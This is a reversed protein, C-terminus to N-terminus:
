YKRQLKLSRLLRKLAVSMRQVENRSTEDAETFRLDLGKMNAIDSESAQSAYGSLQNIPRIVQSRVFWLLGVLSAIFAAVSVWATGGVAEFLDQGGEVIPVSVSIVGAVDGLKYGYGRNGDPYRVRVAVPAKEPTEHCSMCAPAATLRRAYLLRNGRIEMAETGGSERINEIAGLEFRTPANNPNMFKDSTIRFKAAHGSANTVDSLERQILAPNKRHFGGTALEGVAKIDAESLGTRAVYVAPTMGEGKIVPITELFDGAKSSDAGESRAWMGKYKSAWTGVDEVLNAITRARSHASSIYARGMLVFAMLAGLLGVLFLLASFQTWLPMRGFRKFM